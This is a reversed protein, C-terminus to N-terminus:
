NGRQHKFFDEVLEEPIHFEVEHEVNLKNSLIGSKQVLYYFDKAKEDKRDGIYAIFEEFEEVTKIEM